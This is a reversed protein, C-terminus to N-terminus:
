VPWASRPAGTAVITLLSSETAVGLCRTGCITWELLTVGYGHALVVPPGEGAVLARLVTGDPRHILVEEGQPGRAVRDRPFPDPNREIGAVAARAAWWGAVGIAGVVAAGAALGARV